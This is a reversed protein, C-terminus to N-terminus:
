PTYHTKILKPDYNIVRCPIINYAHGALFHYEDTWGGKLDSRQQLHWVTRIWEGDQQTLCYTSRTRMTVRNPYTTERATEWNDELFYIKDVRYKFQKNARELLAKELDAPLIKCNNVSNMFDKTETKETLQHKVKGPAKPDPVDDATASQTQATPQQPQQPQEQPQEQQQTPQQQQEQQQTQQQQQQQQQTQPTNEKVNQEVANRARNLAGGVQARVNINVTLLVVIATIARFFIQRNM